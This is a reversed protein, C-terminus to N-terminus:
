VLSHEREDVSSETESPDWSPCLGQYGPTPGSLWTPSYACLLRSPAQPRAPSPSTADAVDM